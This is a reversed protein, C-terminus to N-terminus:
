GAGGGPKSFLLVLGMISIFTIVTPYYSGLILTTIPFRAYTDVFEPQETMQMWTNSLMVGIFLGFLCMLIAIWFFIPNVPTSYSLVFIALVYGIFIGLFAYDWGSQEFRQIDGLTEAAEGTSNLEPNTSLV